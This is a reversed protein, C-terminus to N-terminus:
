LSIFSTVFRFASINIANTGKNHPSHRLFFSKEVSKIVEGTSFDCLVLWQKPFANECIYWSPSNSVCSTCLKQLSSTKVFEILLSNQPYGFIFFFAVWFTHQKPTKKRLNKPDGLKTKYISVRAKGKPHSIKVGSANSSDSSLSAFGKSNSGSGHLRSATPLQSTM